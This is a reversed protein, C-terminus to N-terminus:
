LGEGMVEGVAQPKHVLVVLDRPAIRGRGYADRVEGETQGAYVRLVHVAETGRGAAELREVRRGINM